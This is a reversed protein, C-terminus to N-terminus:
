GVKLEIANVPCQESAARACEIREVPVTEAKPYAFGQENLAFVEGCVSVCIGCGICSNQDVSAKM